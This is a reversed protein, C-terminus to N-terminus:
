APAAAQGVLIDVIAPVAELIDTRIVAAALDDYPTRGGNVIVLNAGQEVAIWCLSAAPEVQLSSGIALLLQSASVVSVAQNLVDPDLQEGFLVISLKLVGGCDACRPDLEGAKVRDCVQETPLSARCDMCATTRISGHLELIKRSPLGSRQHLGDINQTVVRLALPSQDLRVLADHAVNPRAQWAAHYAYRQWFKVRTEPDRVYKDITFADAASPDRTWVGNPGRYDPIGSGTSIGAGTLVSVRTVDRAWDPVRAGGSAPVGSGMSMSMAVSALVVGRRGTPGVTPKPTVEYVGRIENVKNVEHVRPSHSAWGSYEM